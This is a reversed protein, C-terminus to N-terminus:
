YKQLHTLQQVQNLTQVFPHTGINLTNHVDMTNTKGNIKWEFQSRNPSTINWLYDYSYRTVILLCPVSIM